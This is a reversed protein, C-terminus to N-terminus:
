FRWAGPRTPRYLRQEGKKRVEIMVMSKLRALARWIENQPLGTARELQSYSLWNELKDRGLTEDLIVAYVRMASGPLSVRALAKIVETLSVEPEYGSASGAIARIESEPLPPDCLTKNESQLAALIAAHSMGRGRLGSAMRFLTQNREGEQLVGPLQRSTKKSKPSLIAEKYRQPLQELRGLNDPLLSEESVEYCAHANQGCFNLCAGPGKVEFRIGDISRTATAVAQGQNAFHYHAGNKTLVQPELGLESFASVNEIPEVDIAFGLPGTGRQVLMGWVTPEKSEVWSLFQEESPAEYQFRRWNVLPAKGKDGAGAPVVSYGLSVAKWAIATHTETQM